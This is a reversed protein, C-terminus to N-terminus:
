RGPLRPRPITVRPTRRGTNPAVLEDIAHPHERFQRRGVDFSRAKDDSIVPYEKPMKAKGWWSMLAYRMAAVMDAGDATDDDPDQDQAEGPRAKPYSWNDIEYLLRSGEQETGESDVNMGLRWTYPTLRRFRITNLDLADNIRDVAVKRLKNENGVRVVRLRSQVKFLAPRGDEGTDEVDWGRRFAQNIEMIDQPNAADGWIVMQSIGYRECMEHIKRARATLGENQSFYEDIRTPVGHRDVAWLTFGFRWAGFDIGGFYRGMAVLRTVEDDTMDCQHVSEEFRLCLGELKKKVLQQCEKQFATPGIARLLHLCDDLNQGEWTPTGKVIFPKRIGTKADPRLEIELGTIAPFPGSVVRDSLYDARGDALQSFIGDRIILNQIGLVAGTRTNMAPLISHTIIETKKQTTAATDHKGDIDDLIIFDPRDEDVKLGRAATDLGLADITYGGATRLRERRWGRSHGFKSILPRAHDPYFREISPDELMAAINAVSKDAMDQTERVYLCYKRRGRVGVAIAAGEASSSKGGGRPWIGIFPPAPEGAKIGLVWKWFDVHRQALPASFHRPFMAQLWERWDTPASEARKKKRGLGFMEPPVLPAPALAHREPWLSIGM